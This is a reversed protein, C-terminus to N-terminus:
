NDIFIMSEWSYVHLIRLAYKYVTDVTFNEVNSHISYITWFIMYYIMQKTKIASWLDINMVRASSHHLDLNNKRHDDRPLNSYAQRLWANNLRAIHPLCQIGRCLSDPHLDLAHVSDGTFVM